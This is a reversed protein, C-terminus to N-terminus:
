AIKPKYTRATAAVSANGAFAVRLSLRKARGVKSRPIKVTKRYSCTKSLSTHTSALVKHGKSVRIAVKGTCAQAASLTRPVRYRGKIKLVVFRGVRHGKGGVLPIGAPVGFRPKAAPTTVPPPTSAPATVTITTTAPTSVNGAHDKATVTVTYTGAAAFTFAGSSTTSSSAPGTSSWAYGNDDLGSGGTDAATATFTVTGGANAASPGSVSVTPATRDPLTSAATTVLLVGGTGGVAGHTADALSVARWGETPFGAADAYYFTHGDTSNLIMGADGASLVTGAAYDVDYPGNTPFSRASANGITWSSSNTYGDETSNTTSLGYPDPAVSWMRNPNLPDGALRRRMGDGNGASAPRKQGASALDNTTFYPTYFSGIVIYGVDPTSPVFFGDVLGENYLGSGVKCTDDPTYAGGGNPIDNADVWTGAKGVDASSAPQSRAMQSGEAFIWARGDSAFRVSNVNGLPDTHTCDTFTSHAANDAVSIAPGTNVDQWTDGADASRLVQGGNGVALGITGNAQFAISNLRVSSPGFRRLFTGDPQRAFIEGSATTFWFRTASQYDISTIESTTGTPVQTWDVAAATATGLGFTAIAGGLAAM